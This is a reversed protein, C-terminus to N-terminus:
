SGTLPTIPQGEALQKLAPELEAFTIGGEYKAAIQGNGDVLFTWPESLLNWEEMSPVRRGVQASDSFPYPYVEVHIFNVQGKLENKITKIVELNPGCVATKCFAPTSFAVLFPKKAAIADAISLQYLDPDPVGDSTIQKLEPNDKVTLNKSPIAPSGIAPTNGKELVEIRLRSSQEAGNAGPVQVEVAWAGAKDLNPYAVYLGIPLGQGRYVANAESQVANKDDGDLYFFRLRPTMNPDNLPRGNQLIGIPLRNQGVELESAALVPIFPQAAADQGNTSGTPAAQGCASLLLGVVLVLLGRRANPLTSIYTM